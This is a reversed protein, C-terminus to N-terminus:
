FRDGKKSQLFYQFTCQNDLWFYQPYDDLFYLFVRNAEELTLGLDTLDASERYAACCATM